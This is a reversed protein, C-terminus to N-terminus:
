HLLSQGAQTFLSGFVIINIFVALWFVRQFATKKNKHRFIKQAVVAGPWGGILAIIQLTKEPTRQSLSRAAHKDSGYLIFLILSAGTYLWLIEIPMRGTLGLICVLGYFLAGFVAWYWPTDNNRQRGPRTAFQVSGATHRGKVDTLLEYTVIDGDVPRRSKRIFAKIHVFARDGGGHPMVFGYGKDDQWQMIKGQFRM